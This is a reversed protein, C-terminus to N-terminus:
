KDEEEEKEEKGDRTNSEVQITNPCFQISERGQRSRWYYTLDFGVDM